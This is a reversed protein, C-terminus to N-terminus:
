PSPPSLPFTSLVLLMFALFSCTLLSSTIITTKRSINKGEFDNYHSIILAVIYHIFGWMLLIALTKGLLIM